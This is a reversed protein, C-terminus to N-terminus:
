ALVAECHALVTEASLDRMCRHHGLPCRKQGHASCPSCELELTVVRQRTGLEHVTTPSPGFLAITPVGLARAAHVLGTDGGVVLSSRALIALAERVPNGTTDICFAGARAQVAEALPKDRPGGLLVPTLGREALRDALEAFHHAPWIKTEWESGICLAALSSAGRLREDAMRLWEPRAALRMPRPEAGLARVLAAERGVFTGRPAAARETYLPSGPAGHFGLRRPIRAVLALLASRPSGHPLVAVDYRRERLRRAMRWLGGIGADSGRKDFVQVQAARPMAEVVDSARPTVCVDVEAFREALSDVLASTFVVDGLFAPQVVLVRGGGAM